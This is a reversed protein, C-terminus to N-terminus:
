PCNSNEELQINENGRFTESFGRRSQEHRKKVLGAHLHDIWMFIHLTTNGICGGPTFQAFSLWSSPGFLRHITSQASASETKRLLKGSIDSSNLNVNSRKVEDDCFAQALLLLYPRSGRTGTSCFPLARDGLAGDYTLERLGSGNGFESVDAAASTPQPGLLASVRGM